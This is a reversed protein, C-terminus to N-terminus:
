IGLETVVKSIMAKFTLLHKLDTKFNKFPEYAKKKYQVEKSLHNATGPRFESVSGNNLINFCRNAYSSGKRSKKRTSQSSKPRSSSASKGGNNEESDSESQREEGDEDEDNEDEEDFPEENLL